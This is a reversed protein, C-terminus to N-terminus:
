CVVSFMYLGVDVGVSYIEARFVSVQFLSYRHSGAM